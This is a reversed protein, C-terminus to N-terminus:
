TGMVGSVSNKEPHLLPCLLLGTVGALLDPDVVTNHANHLALRTEVRHKKGRNQCIKWLETERSGSQSGWGKFPHEGCNRRSQIGHIHETAETSYGVRRSVGLEPCYISVAM